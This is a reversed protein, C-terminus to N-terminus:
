ARTVGSLLLIFLILSGTLYPQVCCCIAVGSRVVSNAATGESATACITVVGPAPEMRCCTSGAVGRVGDAGLATRVILGPFPSVGGSLAGKRTVVMWM